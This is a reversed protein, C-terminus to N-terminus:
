SMKNAFQLIDSINEGESFNFPFHIPLATDKHVLFVPLGMALMERINLACEDALGKRYSALSGIWITCKNFTELYESQKMSGHTKIKINGKLKNIM